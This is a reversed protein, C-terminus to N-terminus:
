VVTLDCIQGQSIHNCNKVSIKWVCKQSQFRLCKQHFKGWTFALSDRHRYTLIPQPLPKFSNPVLGSDVLKQSMIYPMVPGHQTLDLKGLVFPSYEVSFSQHPPSSSASTSLSNRSCYRRHSTMRSVSRTSSTRSKMPVWLNILSRRTMASCM